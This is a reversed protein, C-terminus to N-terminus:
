RLDTPRLTYLTHMYSAQCYANIIGEGPDHQPNTTNLVVIFHMIYFSISFIWMRLEYALSTMKALTLSGWM